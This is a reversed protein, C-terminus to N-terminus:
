KQLILISLTCAKESPIGPVHAGCMERKINKFAEQAGENWEFGGKRFKSLIKCVRSLEPLDAYGKIFERYFKAFGLFSMLQMDIRPDKWTLVAEVADLDPRGGHKDVM